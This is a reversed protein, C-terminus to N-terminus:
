KQGDRVILKQRVASKEASRDYLSCLFLWFGMVCNDRIQMM